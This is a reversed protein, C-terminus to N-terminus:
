ATAAKLELWAADEQGEPESPQEAIRRSPRFGRGNSSDAPLM